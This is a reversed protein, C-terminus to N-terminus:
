DIHKEQRIRDARRAQLHGHFGLVWGDVNALPSLTSCKRHSATKGTQAAASSSLETTDPVETESQIVDAESEEGEMVTESEGGGEDDGEEEAEEDGVKRKKLPSEQTGSVRNGRRIGPNNSDVRAWDNKPDSAKLESTNQFRRGQPIM